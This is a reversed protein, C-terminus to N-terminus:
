NNKKIAVPIKYNEFVLQVFDLVWFICVIASPVIVFPSSMIYLMAESFPIAVYVLVLLSVLFMFIAKYYRGIYFNHAGFAGLLGGLLLLKTRNVDKPTKKVMIMARDKQFFQKKAEANTAKEV